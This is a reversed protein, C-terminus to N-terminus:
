DKAPGRVYGRVKSGPPSDYFVAGQHRASTFNDRVKHLRSQSGHSPGSGLKCDHAPASDSIAVWLSGGNVRRKRCAPLAWRPIKRSGALTRSCGGAILSCPKILQRDRERSWRRLGRTRLCHWAWGLSQLASRRRLGRASRSARSRFSSLVCSARGRARYMCSRDLVAQWAGQRVSLFLCPGSAM